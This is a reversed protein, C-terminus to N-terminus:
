FHSLLAWAHRLKQPIYCARRSCTISRLRFVGELCAQLFFLVGHCLAAGSLSVVTDEGGFVAEVAQAMREGCCMCWLKLLMFRGSVWWDALGDGM